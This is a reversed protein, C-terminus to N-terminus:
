QIVELELRGFVLPLLGVGLSERAAGDRFGGSVRKCAGALGVSVLHRVVMELDLFGLVFEVRQPQRLIDVLQSVVRFSKLGLSRIVLLPTVHRRRVAVILRRFVLKFSKSQLPIVIGRHILKFSSNYFM